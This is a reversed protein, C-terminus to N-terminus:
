RSHVPRLFSAPLEGPGGQEARAGGQRPRTGVAARRTEPRWRVSRMRMKPCRCPRRGVRAPEPGGIAGRAASPTTASSRPAEDDNAYRISIVYLFSRRKVYALSSVVRQFGLDRAVVGLQRGDTYRTDPRKVVRTWDLKCAASFRPDARQAGNTGSGIAATGASAASPKAFPVCVLVSPPGPPIDTRGGAVAKKMTQSPATFQPTPRLAVRIAPSANPQGCSAVHCAGPCRPSIEVAQRRDRAIDLFVEELDERGYRGLLEAPSGRDVIRGRKLMMVQRM